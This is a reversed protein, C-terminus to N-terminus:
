RKKKMNMQSRPDIWNSTVYRIKIGDDKLDVYRYKPTRCLGRLFTDSCRIRWPWKNVKM